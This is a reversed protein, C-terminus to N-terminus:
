FAWTSGSRWSNAWASPAGSHTCRRCHQGMPPCRVARWGRGARRGRGRGGAPCVGPEDRRLPLCPAHQPRPIRREASGFRGLEAPEQRYARVIRTGSLNEQAHTTLTSFHEQVAEFRDHIARGMRVMISRFATGDPALGTRHPASQHAAHIRARDARRRHHRGSVHDGSRGGDSGREPRQHAAGHHRGDADPRLLGCGPARAPRVLANRLDYEVYRSVGNLLERMSTASYAAWRAAIAVMLGALVLTHRLRRQVHTLGDIATGLYWTVCTPCRRRSRRGGRAGAHAPASLPAHVAVAVPPVEHAVSLVRGCRRARPPRRRGRLRRRHAHRRHLIGRGRRPRRRVGHRRPSDRVAPTLGQQEYRLSDPRAQHHIRPAAMADSLTMHFDIVNLIVQATSTIIRPGGRGGVVLLLRGAPDLVITPSM